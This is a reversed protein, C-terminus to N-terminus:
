IHAQAHVDKEEEPENEGGSLGLEKLRRFFTSRSIDAERAAEEVTIEGKRWRELAQQFYFNTDIKRRGFKAGREKAARMMELQRQSAANFRYQVFYEFSRLVIESIVPRMIDGQKYSDLFPMDLIVLAIGRETLERWTAFIEQQNRGLGDLSAVVLTDGANLFDSMLRQFRLREERVGCDDIVLFGDRIGYDKLDEMQASLRESGAKGALYGYVKGM